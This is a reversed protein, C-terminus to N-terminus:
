QVEKRSTKIIIHSKAKSLYTPFPSLNDSFLVEGHCTYIPQSVADVFFNSCYECVCVCVCVSVCVQVCM